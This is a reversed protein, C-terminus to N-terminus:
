QEIGPPTAPKQRFRRHQIAARLADFLAILIMFEVLWLDIAIVLTMTPVLLAAYVALGVLTASFPDRRAWVYLGVFVVPAVLYLVGIWIMWPEDRFVALRVMCAAGMFVYLGATVM